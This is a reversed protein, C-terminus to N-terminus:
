VFLLLYLINRRNAAIYSPCEQIAENCEQPRKMAAIYSQCEQIAANCEQPRKRLLMNESGYKPRENGNGERELCYNPCERGNGERERELCYKPRERGKGQKALVSPLIHTIRTMLIQMAIVGANHHHYYIMVALTIAKENVGENHRHNCIMALLTVVLLGSRPQQRASRSEIRFCRTNMRTIHEAAAQLRAAWEQFRSPPTNDEATTEYHLRDLQQQELRKPTHTRHNARGDSSSLRSSGPLLTSLPDVLVNYFVNGNSHAMGDVVDIVISKVRHMGCRTYAVTAYLFRLSPLKRGREIRRRTTTKIRSYVVFLMAMHNWFQTLVWEVIAQCVCALWECRAGGIFAFVELRVHPLRWTLSKFNPRSRMSDEASAGLLSETIRDVSGTSADMTGGDIKSTSADVTDGDKKSNTADVTSGDTKNNENPKSVSSLEVANAPNIGTSGVNKEGANSSSATPRNHGRNKSGYRSTMAVADTANRNGISDANEQPDIRMTADKYVTPPATDRKVVKGVSISPYNDRKREEDGLAATAGPTVASTVSLLLMPSGALATSTSPPGGTKMKKISSLPM